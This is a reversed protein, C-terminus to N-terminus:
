RWGDGRRQRRERDSVPLDDGALLLLARLRERIQENFRQSFLGGTNGGM